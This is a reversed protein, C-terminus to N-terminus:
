YTKGSPLKVLGKKLGVEFALASIDYGEGPTVEVYDDWIEVQMASCRQRAMPVRHLEGPTSVMYIDQVATGSSESPTMYVRVRINHPSIYSGLILMRRVRSFGTVGAWNLWATKIYLSIDANGPDTFGSNEQVVSTAKAYTWKGGYLCSSRVDSIAFTSWKQVYYDYVLVRATSALRVQNSTAVLVASNIPESNYAEVPAGVYHLGLARDLLMVGKASQLVIGAPMLCVSGPSACGCDGAVLQPQGYDSTAGGLRTPGQGAFAYVQTQKLLVVKEDMPQVAVIRGGTPDCVVSLETPNWEVPQGPVIEHSFCVRNPNEADAIFVRSRGTALGAVPPPPMNDVVGGSTYLTINGASRPSGTTNAGPMAGVPSVSGDDHWTTNDIGKLEVVFLEAGTSRGYVRYGTCNPVRQWSLDVASTTNNVVVEACPITEGNENVSSVRYYKNGASLNGPSTTNAAPAPLPSFGAPPSSSSITLQYARFNAVGVLQFASDDPELGGIATTAWYIRYSTASPEPAWALNVAFPTSTGGGAVKYATAQGTTEGYQNLVTLLFWNDQTDALTGLTPLKESWDFGPSTIAAPSSVATLGTPALIQSIGEIVADTNTDVYSLWGTGNPLTALRYFITGGNKTRYLEVQVGQKRTVGLGPVQVTVSHSDDIPNATTMTVSTSAASRMLQGAQDSWTYVACYQYSYTSATITPLKVTDPYLHFSHEVLNVGDWHMLLDGIAILLGNAATVSKVTSSEGIVVRDVSTLAFLGAKPSTGLSTKELCAFGYDSLRTYIHPLSSYTPPGGAIGSLIRAGVQKTGDLIAEDNYTYLFLTSQEVSENAGVFKYQGSVPNSVGTALSLGNVVVQPTGYPLAYTGSVEQITLSLIKSDIPDQPRQSILLLHRHGVVNGPALYNLGAISMSHVNVVTAQVGKDSATVTAWDYETVIIQDSQDQWAVVSKGSITRATLAKIDTSTYSCPCIGGQYTSGSFQYVAPVVYSGYKLPIAVTVTDDPERRVDMCGRQCCIKGVEPGYPSLIGPVSFTLTSAVVSSHWVQGYGNSGYRWWLLLWGTGLSVVRPAICLGTDIAGDALTVGTASDIIRYRGQGGESWVFMERGSNVHYAGDPSTQALSTNRTVATPRATVSPIAGKDVLTSGVKLQLHNNGDVIALTDGYPIAAKVPTAIGTLLNDGGNRKRIKGPTTFVGNELAVLEGVPAVKSDTKTDIGSTLPVTVTTEQLM